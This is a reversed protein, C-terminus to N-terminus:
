GAEALQYRVVVEAEPPPPEAFEIAPAAYDVTFAETREGEITATVTGEAPTAQLAFRTPWAVVLEGLTAAVSTFDVDCVSVQAGGTREAVELYRLGANANGTAGDCGHPADGVVASARAPQGSRAAQGELVAVFAAVPDAGLVSGSQDEGDSVFVVHLGASARRFGHNQGSPDRLTLTAADLGASPPVHGTGVAGLALALAPAPAESEPTLIWPDGYLVGGDEPDTSAVGIQWDLGQEDLTTVFASAAAGLAGQEEAMSGTGDVVFLVDVAPPAGQVLSETTWVPDPSQADPDNVGVDFGTCAIALVVFV